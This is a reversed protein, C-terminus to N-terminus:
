ERRCRTKYGNDDGDLTYRFNEVPRFEGSPAGFLEFL